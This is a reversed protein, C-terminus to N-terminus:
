RYARGRCPCIGCRGPQNGAPALLLSLEDVVDQQLFTWNIIGGGCILMMEIGFYEYLKQAALQCDLTDKGAIIYSM